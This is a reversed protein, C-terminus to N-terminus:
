MTEQSWYLSYASDQSQEMQATNEKESETSRSTLKEDDCDWLKKKFDM